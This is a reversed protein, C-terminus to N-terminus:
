SQLESTHEESRRAGTMTDTANAIGPARRVSAVREKMPMPILGGVGLRPVIIASPNTTNEVVGQGTSRGARHMETSRRANVNTPSPSRSARSGREDVHDPDP